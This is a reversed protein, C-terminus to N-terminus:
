SPRINHFARHIKRMRLPRGVISVFENKYVSFSISKLAEIEGSPTNYKMSVNELKILEDSSGCAHKVAPPPFLIANESNM